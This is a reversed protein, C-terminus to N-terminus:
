RLFRSIHIVLIEYNILKLEFQFQIIPKLGAYEKEIFCKIKFFDIGYCFSNYKQILTLSFNWKGINKGFLM